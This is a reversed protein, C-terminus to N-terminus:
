GEKPRLPASPSGSVARHGERYYRSLREQGRSIGVRISRIVHVGPGAGVDAFSFRGPPDSCCDEANDAGTIGLERTLVGPGRLPVSTENAAAGVSAVSVIEGARILVANASGVVDTVVNLCWHIGYIRYVYLFGAPGFMIRSRPTPGRFAHSAPDDRGGYAETEVILVRIVADKTRLVLGSGVLERAVTDSPREFFDRTYATDSV